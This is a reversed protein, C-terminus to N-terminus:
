RPQPSPSKREDYEGKEDQQKLFEMYELAKKKNGPDRLTHYLHDIRDLTEDTEPEPPLSYVARHVEDYPIVLVNAIAWISAVEPKKSKGSMYYSIVQRSLGTMRSLDAQSLDRKRLENM